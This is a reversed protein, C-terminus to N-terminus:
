VHARGIENQVTKNQTIEGLVQGDAGYFRISIVHEGDDDPATNWQCSYFNLGKGDNSGDPKMTQLFNGDLFLEVKVTDLGAKAIIKVSGNLVDDKPYVFEYKKQAWKQVWATKETKNDAKDWAVAKIEYKNEDEPGGLDFSASFQGDAIEVPVSQGNVTVEGKLFNDDDMTGKIQCVGTQITYGSQPKSRFLM